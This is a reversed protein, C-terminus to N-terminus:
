AMRSLRAAPISEGPEIRFPMLSMRIKHDGLVQGGEEGATFITKRFGRLLTVCLPRSPRDLLSSEYQGPALLALGVGEEHAAIWNQQASMEVQLERRTHNDAPLGVAREVADFPTDAFYSVAGAFRTPCLLRLRHDRVTNRVTTEIEVTRG